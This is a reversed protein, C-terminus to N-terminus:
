EEWLVQILWLRGSSKWAQQWKFRADAQEFLRKWDDVERERSNCATKVLVDLIRISKEERCSVSGPAPLMADNVIIHAGTRLAPVLARLIRVAYEDSFAHFVHRFFYAEAVVPQEEFFDHTTLEVRGSLHAPVKARVAPTRVGPLDQVIFSLTPFAEAIAMSVSGENGGM